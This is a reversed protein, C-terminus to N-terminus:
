DRPSPSTYLLCIKIGSEEDSKSLYEKLITGKKHIQIFSSLYGPTRLPAEVYYKDPYRTQIEDLLRDIYKRAVVMDIDDDWPIFGKHRVAGLASGGTLMYPISLEECITVVDVTIGYLIQQISRIEEPTLRHQQKTLETKFIENTQLVAM